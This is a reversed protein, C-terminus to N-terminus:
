SSRPKSRHRIRCPLTPWGAAVAVTVTSNGDLVLYRDRDLREVDIPKRRSKEGRYAAGMYKVAKAIGDHRARSQVLSTVPLQSAGTMEFYRGPEHPLCRAAAVIEAPIALEESRGGEKLVKITFPKM